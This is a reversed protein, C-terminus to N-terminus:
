MLLPTPPSQTAILQPSAVAPNIVPLVRPVPAFPVLLWFRWTYLMMLVSWVWVLIPYVTSQTVSLAPPAVSPQMPVVVRAITAIKIPLHNWIVRLDLVLVFLRRMASQPANFLLQPKRQWLYCRDLSWANKQSCKKTSVISSNPFFVYLQFLIM